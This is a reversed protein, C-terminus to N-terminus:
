LIKRAFIASLTIGSYFFRGYIESPVQYPTM